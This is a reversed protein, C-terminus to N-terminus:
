PIFWPPISKSYTSQCSIWCTWGLSILRSYENSPSISFSFSWCKLWRTHLVLENSFVRISPFISLPLLLPRCLTLHNSPMVSAISMLNLLRQSNTISLSAQRAATRPTVFLQVRSLSQVSSFQFAKLPSGQHSLHYLSQRCHQFGLNLGQTPFIGQLLSYCGVGTNKGLSNWPCLLRTPWLGHPGLSSSMVSRTDFAKLPQSKQQLHSKGKLPLHWSGKSCDKGM